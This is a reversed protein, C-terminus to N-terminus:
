WESSEPLVHECPGSIISHPKVVEKLHHQVCTDAYYPQMHEIHLTGYNNVTNSSAPNIHGHIIICTAM